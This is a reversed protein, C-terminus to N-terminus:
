TQIQNFRIQRFLSQHIQETINHQKYEIQWSNYFQFPTQSYLSIIVTLLNYKMYSLSNPSLSVHFEVVTVRTRKRARLIAGICPDSQLVFFFYSIWIYTNNHLNIYLVNWTVNNVMIYIRKVYFVCKYQIFDRAKM